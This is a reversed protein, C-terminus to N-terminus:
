PVVKPGNNMLVFNNSVIPIERNTRRIVGILQCAMEDFVSRSIEISNPDLLETSKPANTHFLIWNRNHGCVEGLTLTLLYWLDFLLPANVTKESQGDESLQQYANRRSNDLVFNDFFGRGDPEPALFSYLMAIQRETFPAIIQYGSGTRRVQAPNFLGPSTTGRQKTKELAAAVADKLGPSAAPADLQTLFEIFKQPDSTAALCVGLSTALFKMGDAHPDHSQRDDLYRRWCSQMAVQAAKPAEDVLRTGVAMNCTMGGAADEIAEDLFRMFFQDAEEQRTM